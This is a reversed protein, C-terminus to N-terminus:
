LSAEYARTAAEYADDDIISMIEPPFPLRQLTDDPLEDFFRRVHAHVLKELHAQQTQTSATHDFELAPVEIRFYDHQSFGFLWFHDLGRRDTDKYVGWTFERWTFNTM